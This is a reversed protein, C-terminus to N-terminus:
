APDPPPPNGVITLCGNATTCSPLAFTQTFIGLDTQLTPNNFAVVIAITQGSGQNAVNDFGYAHRIEAPTVGVVKDNNQSTPIVYISAPRVIENSQSLAEISASGLLVVLMISRAFSNRM